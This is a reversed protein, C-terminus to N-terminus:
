YLNYPKGDKDAGSAASRIDIIGHYTNPVSSEKEREIIWTQNSRTIPDIPIERLYGSDILNQL